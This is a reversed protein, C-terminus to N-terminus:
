YRAVVSTRASFEKMGGPAKIERNATEEIVQDM